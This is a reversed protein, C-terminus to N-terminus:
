VQILQYVGYVYLKDCYDAYVIMDGMLGLIRVKCM